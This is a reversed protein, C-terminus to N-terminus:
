PTDVTKWEPLEYEEDDKFSLGFPDDEEKKSSSEGEAATDTLISKDRENEERKENSLLENYDALPFNTKANDKRFEIAKLDYARAAEEATGFTGLWIGKEKRPDRIEAAWKGSPRQRVGRYKKKSLGSRQMEEGSGSPGEIRRLTSLTTEPLPFVAHHDHGELIDGTRPLSINSDEGAIVHYLASVIASHEKEMLHTNSAPTQKM